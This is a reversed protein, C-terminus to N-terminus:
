VLVILRRLRHSCRRITVEDENQHSNASILTAHPSKNFLGNNQKQNKTFIIYEQVHVFFFWINVYPSLIESLSNTSSAAFTSCFYSFCCSCRRKACHNESFSRLFSFIINNYFVFRGCNGM